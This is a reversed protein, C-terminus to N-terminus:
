EPWYLIRGCQDCHVIGKDGKANLSTQPPVKMHCGMCVEHELAVIADGKSQFLRQYRDLLTEDIGEALAERGTELEALRAKVTALKKELDALQGEILSKTAAFESEVAAIQAKSKEYDEMLDLERDEISQIEGEFRKIENGLAQYEENKRTEFQQTRFKGIQTRRTEADLELRKREVEVEKSRARVADLKGRSERLRDELAKRESPANSQERKLSRIRQDRDQLILLKELEPAM